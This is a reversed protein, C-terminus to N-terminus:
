ADFVWTAIPRCHTVALGKIQLKRETGGDFYLAFKEAGTADSVRCYGPKPTQKSKHQMSIVGSAAEKLLGKPIEILEYEHRTAPQNRDPPVRFYRLTLIRQSRDLHKLFGDRLVGLSAEDTWTGKGLEMYKSIHIAPRKIDQDAQTKLSYAEGNVEVDHGAHGPPGFKATRGALTMARVMAYEFNEKSLHRDSLAHHVVLASGFAEIFGHGFPATQDHTTTQIPRLLQAVVGGVLAQQVATLRRYNAIIPDAKPKAM